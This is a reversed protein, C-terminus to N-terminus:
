LAVTGPPVEQIGSIFFCNLHSGKMNLPTEKWVIQQAPPFHMNIDRRRISMLLGSVDIM